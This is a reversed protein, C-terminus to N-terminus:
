RCAQAEILKASLAWKNDLISEIGVLFALLHKPFNEAATGIQGMSHGM